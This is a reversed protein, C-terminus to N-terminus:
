DNKPKHIPRLDFAALTLDAVILISIEITVLAASNMGSQWYANAPGLPKVVVTLLAACLCLILTFASHRLDARSKEFAESGLAEEYRNLEIHISATSALTITVLVGMFSLYEHNVFGLLFANQDGLINPNIATLVAALTASCIM